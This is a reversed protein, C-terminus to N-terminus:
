FLLALYCFLPALQTLQFLASDFFTAPAASFTCNIIYSNLRMSLFISKRPTHMSLDAFSFCYSKLPLPSEDNPRGTTMLQGVQMRVDNLRCLVWLRARHPKCSVQLHGSRHAFTAIIKTACIAFLLTGASRTLPIRDLARLALHVTAQRM